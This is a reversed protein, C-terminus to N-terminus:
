EGEIRPALLYTAQGYGRVIDFVIKVPYDTGLYITVYEASDMAKALKLLYDVPYMSKLPEECQIEKLMDKPMTLRVSDEDGQTYMEFETPTFKLIISDTISEAAKIGNVFESKPIVVKGPLVLNPVKPVTLASTDILAMSRTLNGIQFTLKNGDKTIEVTDGSSTLKLIDKVKDLDIGLEEEEVEYGAFGEPSVNLIMMAVHAPDVAKVALGDGSFEFKAENVLTLLLNTLEKLDRVGVKIRM